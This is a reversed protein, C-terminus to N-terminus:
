KDFITSENGMAVNRVDTMEYKLRSKIVEVKRCSYLLMASIGVIVLVLLMVLWRAIGTNNENIFVTNDYSTSPYNISM